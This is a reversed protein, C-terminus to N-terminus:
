GDYRMIIGHSNDHSTTQFWWGNKWESCAAQFTVRIDQTRRTGWRHYRPTVGDIGHRIWTHHQYILANVYLPNKNIPDMACWKELLVM